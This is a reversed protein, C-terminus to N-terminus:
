SKQELTLAFNFDAVIVLNVFRTNFRETSGNDTSLQWSVNEPYYRRKNVAVVFRAVVERPFNELVM